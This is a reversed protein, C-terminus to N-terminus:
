PNQEQDEHSKGMRAKLSQWALPLRDWAKVAQEGLPKRAFWIALAGVTVAVVGKNEVAIDIVEKASSKAKNAAEEAVRKGIGKDALGGRLRDYSDTVSTLAADREARAIAVPDAEISM